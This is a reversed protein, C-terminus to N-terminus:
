TRYKAYNVYQMGRLFTSYIDFPCVCVFLCVSLCVCANTCVCVYVCIHTHTHTHKNTHIHTHTHTNTQTYTHTLSHTHTHTHTCENYACGPLFMHERVRESARVGGARGGARWRETLCRNPPCSHLQSPCLTIEVEGHVPDVPACVCVCVGVLLWFLVSVCLCLCLMSVYLYLFPHLCFRVVSVSVSVSVSLSLCLCLSPPREAPAGQSAEAVEFGGARASHIAAYLRGGGEERTVV